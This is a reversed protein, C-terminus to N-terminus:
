GLSATQETWRLQARWLEALAGGEDSTQRSRSCKGTQLRAVEAVDPSKLLADNHATGSLLALIATVTLCEGLVLASVECSAIFEAVGARSAWVRGLDKRAKPPVFSTIYPLQEWWSRMPPRHASAPLHWCRSYFPVSAFIPLCTLSSFFDNSRPAVSARTAM